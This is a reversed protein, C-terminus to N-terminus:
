IMRMAEGQMIEIKTKLASMIKEMDKREIRLRMEEIGRGTAEWLKEAQSDSKTDKRLENWIAPKKELIECLKGGLYAYEGALWVRIDSLEGPTLGETGERRIKEMKGRVDM